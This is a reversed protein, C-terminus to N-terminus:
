DATRGRVLPALLGWQWRRLGPTEAPDEGRTERELAGELVARTALVSHELDLRDALRNRADMVRRLREPKRPPGRRRGRDEPGPLAEEPLCEAREIATVIARAHRRGSGRRRALTTEVGAATRPRARALKLLEDNHLVRFPPRDARRALEERLAFLERLAALGRADLTRAGRVARYAERTDPEVWRITELLRFEEIAWEWRGLERLRQELRDALELLHRTDLVAYREMEPTLPRRSWDARQFRKDLVVGFEQELLAALGVRREGCLRAAIMTDFVGRLRLGLDRDLVRLDYDAGHLVKRVAADELVPSLLGMDVDALPDVLLDRGGFSLQVLCIKEPYHHLSDAETDLALPGAGVERLRDRLRDTRECWEHRDEM